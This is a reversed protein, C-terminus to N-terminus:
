SANHPFSFQQSDNVLIVMFTGSLGTLSGRLQNKVNSTGAPTTKVIVAIAYAINGVSSSRAAWAPEVGGGDM